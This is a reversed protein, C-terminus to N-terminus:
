TSCQFLKCIYIYISFLIYSHKWNARFRLYRKLVKPDDEM